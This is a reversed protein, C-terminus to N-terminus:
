LGAQSSASAQLSHVRPCPNAGGGVPTRRGCMKRVPLTLPPFSASLPKVPAREQRARRRRAAAQEAHPRDLPEHGPVGQSGPAPGASLRVPRQPPDRVLAAHLHERQRHAEAVHREAVGARHHRVPLGVGSASSPMPQTRPRRPEVTAALVVQHPEHAVALVAVRGAGDAAHQPVARRRVVRRREAAGGRQDVVLVPALQHLVEDAEVARRHVARAADGVAAAVPEGALLGDAPRIRGIGQGPEGLTVAVQELRGDVAARVLELDAHRDDGGAPERVLRRGDILAGADDVLGLVGARADAGAKVAVRGFSGSSRVAPPTSSM